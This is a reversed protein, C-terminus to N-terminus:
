LIIGYWISKKDYIRFDKKKSNLTITEPTYTQLKLFKLGCKKAEIVIKIANEISKNHNRSMEGIILPPSKLGIYHNGVKM